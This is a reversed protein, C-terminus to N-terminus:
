TYMVVSSSPECQRVRVLVCACACLHVYVCARVCVCVCMYVFDHTRMGYNMFNEHQFFTHLLKPHGIVNYMTYRMIVLHAHTRVDTAPHIFAHHPM